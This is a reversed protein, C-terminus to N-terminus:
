FTCSIELGVRKSSTYLDTLHLDTFNFSRKEAFIEASLCGRLRNTYGARARAERSVTGGRAPSSFTWGNVVRQELYFTGWRGRSVTGKAWTGIIPNSVDKYTEDISDAWAFGTSVNVGWTFRWPSTPVDYGWTRSARVVTLELYSDIGLPDDKGLRVAGWELTDRLTQFRTQTVDFDRQSALATFSLVGYELGTDGKGWQLHAGISGLMRDPTPFPQCECDRVRPTGQGRRLSHRGALIVKTGPFAEDITWHAEARAISLNSENIDWADNAHLSSTFLAAVVILKRLRM